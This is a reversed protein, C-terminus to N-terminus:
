FQKSCETYVRDFCPTVKVIDRPTEVSLGGLKDDEKKITVVPEHCKSMAQELCQTHIPQPFQWPYVWTSDETRYYRYPRGSILKLPGASNYVKSFREPDIQDLQSIFPFSPHYSFRSFIAERSGGNQSYTTLNGYV